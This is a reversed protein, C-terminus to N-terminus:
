YNGVVNGDDRNSLNYLTKLELGEQLFAVSGDTRAAMAGGPHASQIPMNGGYYENGVGVNNWKKDNISYRVTTANFSRYDPLKAPGMCFGHGHVSRCNRKQGTSDVCWDSQEAVIITNTTGDRIDGIKVFDRAILVGGWSLKGISNHQESTSDRDVLTRHDIAGNVATYTPSWVGIPGPPTLTSLGWKGLPSSPCALMELSLGALLRGNDTNAVLGSGSAGYIVGTHNSNIGVFDFKDSISRQEMQPLIAVMWSHGWGGKPSPLGSAPFSRASNEYTLLALGLQKLNNMCQVRRAAERASQVAPLLLSVLIGIIAIVVLLEVLTFARRSELPPRGNM